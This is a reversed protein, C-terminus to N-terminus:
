VNGTVHDKIGPSSFLCQFLGAPGHSLCLAFGFQFTDILVGPEDEEFELDHFSM